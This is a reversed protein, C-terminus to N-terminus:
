EPQTNGYPEVLISLQKARAIAQTRSRVGLKGYINATHGKVTSVAIILKEAIERNSLGSAILELVELERESLPEVLGEQLGAEPQVKPMTSVALLHGVYEPVIGREAAKYLLGLLAEGEDLFVRMYGERKGFVLAQELVTLAETMNGMAYHVLAKLVEAQIGTRRNKYGAAGRIIVELVRLSDAYRKQAIYYRALVLYQHAQLPHIGSAGVSELKSELDIQEIWYEAEGLRGQAIWLQAQYSDVLEDDINSVEFEIAAQRARDVLEQAAMLRGEVEDIRALTLYAIVSGVEIFYEFLDICENLYDRATDLNNWERAISGLGLLAKSAVPLRRGNPDTALALARQYASWARRLHGQVMWIGAMNTLAGVAVLLNGARRGMEAAREFSDAAADFEGRLTHIMGLNDAVLSHLFLNEEPLLEQACVLHHQSEQVDSRMVAILGKLAHMSGLLSSDPRLEEVTKLRAEILDFDGSTITLAWAQSMCLAPDASVIEEPLAEVWRLLTEAENRMLRPEAAQHILEVAMRFDRAAIAHDIAEDLFGNAKYWESARHNLYPLEHPLSGLAVKHLFDAFLRHYRYWCREGDLPVIFLHANELLELVEQSDSRGTLADCLSANLRELVSTSLLFSRMSAEQRNLVEEGLYDLIHRSAGSFNRIFAQRDAQEQLSLAALQLGAAWGETRAELVAVEDATLELQMVQNYFALAEERTFCLDLERVENMQGRARLRALPLPPDARSTIVLHMSHPQHEILFGVAEHVIRSEILHYDDLVLVFRKGESVVENILATLSSRVQLKGSPGLLALAGEGLGPFVTRLAAILYNLFRVADNEDEDLSLWAIPHACYLAWAALLTTKGYGAPACVLTLKRELGADLHEILRPRAVLETRQIPLTLKTSLLPTVVPLNYDQTDYKNV